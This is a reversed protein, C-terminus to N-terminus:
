YRRRYRAPEIEALSGGAVAPPVSGDLIPQFDSVVTIKMYIDVKSSYNPTLNGEFDSMDRNLVTIDSRPVNMDSMPVVMDTNPVSMDSVPVTIDGNPDVM